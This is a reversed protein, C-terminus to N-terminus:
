SARVSAILEIPRYTAVVALVTTAEFRDGQSICTLSPSTWAIGTACQPVIRQLGCCTLAKASFPRSRRGISRNSRVGAVSMGQFGLPETLAISPMVLGSPRMRPLIPCESRTTSEAIAMLMGSIWVLLEELCTNIIERLGAQDLCLRRWSTRM